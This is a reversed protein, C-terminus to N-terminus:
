LNIHVQDTCLYETRVGWIFANPRLLIIVNISIIATLVSERFKHFAVIIKKMDTQRDAHFLRAGVLRIKVFNSIQTSQSFSDLFNV